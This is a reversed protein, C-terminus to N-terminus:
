PRELATFVAFAPGNQGIDFVIIIQCFRVIGRVGESQCIGRVFDIGVEAESDVLDFFAGGELKGFELQQCFSSRYVIVEPHARCANGRLVLVIDQAVASLRFIIRLGMGQRETIRDDVCVIGGCFVSTRELDIGLIGIQDDLAAIMHRIFGFESYICIIIGVQREVAIEGEIAIIGGYVSIFVNGQCGAHDNSVSPFM